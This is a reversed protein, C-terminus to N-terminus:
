GDGDVPTGPQPAPKSSPPPDGPTSPRADPAAPFSLTHEQGRIVRLMSNGHRIIIIGAITSVVSMDLWSAGRAVVVIVFLFSCVVSAVSAKKLGRAIVLWVVALIAIV